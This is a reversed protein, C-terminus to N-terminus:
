EKKAEADSTPKKTSVQSRLQKIILNFRETDILGPVFYGNIIYSPAGKIGLNKALEFNYNVLQKIDYSNIENEVLSYDIEHKKLLEKINTENLPQTKMLGDHILPFKEASIKQVALSIKAAYMSVEGLIPLPRLILKITSDNQIIEQNYEHAKKCYSCNYDFFMVLSFEGSNNGLIPPENFEEIASLNDKLYTSTQQHSEELKKKQINEVAQIIVEPNNIIYDKVIKKIQEEDLAINSNIAEESSGISAKVVQPNSINKYVFLSVLILFVIVLITNFIKHMKYM